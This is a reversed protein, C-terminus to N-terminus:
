IRRLMNRSVSIELPIYDLQTQKPGHPTSETACFFESDKGALCSPSSESANVQRRSPHGKNDASSLADSKRGTDAGGSARVRRGQGGGRLGRSGGRGEQEEVGGAGIEGGDETQSSSLRWEEGSSISTTSNLDGDLSGEERKACLVVGSQGSPTRLSWRSMGGGDPVHVSEEDGGGEHSLVGDTAHDGEGHKTALSAAAAATTEGRENGGTRYAEHDHGASASQRDNEPGVPGDSDLNGHAHAYEIDATTERGDCGAVTGDGNRGLGIRSGPINNQGADLTEGNPLTDEGGGSNLRAQHHTSVGDTEAHRAGKTNSNNSSNGRKTPAEGNAGGGDNDEHRQKQMAGAADRERKRTGMSESGQTVDTATGGERVAEGIVGDSRGFKDPSQRAGGAVGAPRKSSGDVFAESSGSVASDKGFALNNIGGVGLKDASSAAVHTKDGARDVGECRDGSTLSGKNGLDGGAAAAAAGDNSAYETAGQDSGGEVHSRSPGNLGHIGGRVVGLTDTNSMNKNSGGVLLQDEVLRANEFSDPDERRKGRTVGPSRTEEPKSRANRTTSAGGLARSGGEKTSLVNESLDSSNEEISGSAASSSSPVSAGEGHCLRGITEPTGSSRADLDPLHNYKTDDGIPRDGFDDLSDQQNNRNITSSNVHNTKSKPRAEGSDETNNLAPDRARGVSQVADVGTELGGGKEVSGSSEGVRMGNGVSVEAHSLSGEGVAVAHEEEEGDTTTFRGDAADKRPEQRPALFEGNRETAGNISAKQKYADEAGESSVNGTNDIGGEGQVDEADGTGSGSVSGGGRKEDDDGGTRGPAPWTRLQKLAQLRQRLARLRQIHKDKLKPSLSNGRANRSDALVALIADTDLPVSLRERTAHM